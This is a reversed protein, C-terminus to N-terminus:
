LPKPRAESRCDLKVFKILSAVKSDEARIFDKIVFIRPNTTLQNLLSAVVMNSIKGGFKLGFAASPTSFAVLVISHRKLM